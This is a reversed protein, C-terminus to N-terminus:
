VVKKKAWASLLDPHFRILRGIKIKPIEGRSLHLYFTSRALQLYECAENLTMLRKSAEMPIVKKIEKAKHGM